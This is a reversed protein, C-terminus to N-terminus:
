ANGTSRCQDTQVYLDSFSEALGILASTHGVAFSKVEVDFPPYLRLRSRDFCEHLRRLLYQTKGLLIVLPFLLKDVRVLASTYGVSFVVTKVM